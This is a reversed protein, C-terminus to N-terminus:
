TKEEIKLPNLVLEFRNTSRNSGSPGAVFAVCLHKSDAGQLEVIKYMYIEVLREIWQELAQWMKQM